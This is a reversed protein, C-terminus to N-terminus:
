NKFYRNTCWMTSIKFLSKLILACFILFSSFLFTLHKLIITFVWCANPTLNGKSWHHHFICINMILLLLSKVSAYLIAITLQLNIYCLNICMFYNLRQYNLGVCQFHLDLEHKSRLLVYNWCNLFSQIFTLWVLLLKEIFLMGQIAHKSLVFIEREKILSAIVCFISKTLVNKIKSCIFDQVFNNRQKFPSLLWLFGKHIFNVDLLLLRVTKYEINVVM